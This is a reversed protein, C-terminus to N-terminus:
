AKPEPLAGLHDAFTRPPPGASDSASADPLSTLLSVGTASVALLFRQQCYGVVLLTNRYGLSKSELIKLHAPVGHYLPFFRSKKFFWVAGLFVALVLFLAGILRLMLYLYDGPPNQPSSLTNTGGMGGQVGITVSALLLSPFGARAPLKM